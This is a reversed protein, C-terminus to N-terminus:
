KAMSQSVLNKEIFADLDTVRYMVRNGIRVYHPGRGEVRAHDLWSRSLNLYEAAARASILAPTTMVAGETLQVSRASSRAGGEM